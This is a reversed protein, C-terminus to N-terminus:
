DAGGQELSYDQYLEITRFAGSDMIWRGIKLTKRDKLRHRSVMVSGLETHRADSPQHCGVFFERM